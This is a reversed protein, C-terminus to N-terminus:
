HVRHSNPFSDVLFLNESCGSLHSMLYSRCSWWWERRLHSQLPRCSPALHWLQQQSMPYLIHILNSKKRWETQETLDDIFSIKWFSLLASQWNQWDDQTCNAKYISNSPTCQVARVRYLGNDIPFAWHQYIKIINKMMVNIGLLHDISLLIFM